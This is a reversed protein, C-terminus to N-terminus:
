GGLRGVGELCLGHGDEPAEPAPQGRLGQDHMAIGAVVGNIGSDSRWLGLCGILDFAYRGVPRRAVLNSM